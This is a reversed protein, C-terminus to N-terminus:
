KSTVELLLNLCEYINKFQEDSLSEFMPWTYDCVDMAIDDTIKIAKETLHIYTIRADESSQIKYLYGKEVLRNILPSITNTSKNLRKCIDTVKTEKPHHYIDLIIISQISSLGYPSCLDDRVNNFYNSLDKIMDIVERRAKLDNKTM